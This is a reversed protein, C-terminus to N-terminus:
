GIATCRPANINLLTCLPDYNFHRLQFGNYNYMRSPVSYASTPCRSCVHHYVTTGGM